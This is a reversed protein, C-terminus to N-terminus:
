TIMEEHSHDNIYLLDITMFAKDISSNFTTTNKKNIQQINLTQLYIQDEQNISSTMIGIVTTM